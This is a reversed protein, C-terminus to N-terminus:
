TLSSVFEALRTCGTTIEAESAAFSLRCCDAATPGFDTGPVVAVSAEELLANCFDMANEIRAGGPSTRGFCGSLEPFCYFAGSPRVCRIGDIDDLLGFMLRGREAFSLRMREVEPAGHDLAEIIPPMCFAPISSVMQSHLKAASAAFAGEGAPTALYGIRWGTMAFAKSLGNVTITRQAMGPMSGISFHRVDPDIEPYILKEYIEDSLLTLGPHREIVEALAQLEDPSYVTGCPNSPSNIMVAVTRPTIAQELQEPTIKWGTEVTGSVETPVGGCVGVIAPVSVWAPSVLLVEDGRGPEILCSMALYIAHKGGVTVVVDRGEVPIGNEDRLKSAIRDRCDMSGPSPAYRTLGGDVSQHLSEVIHRPTDFDPEGTGFGIVDVGRAKLERAKASVALTSSPPLNRVNSSIPITNMTPM